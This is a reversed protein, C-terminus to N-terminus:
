IVQATDAYETAVNEICPGAKQPDLDQYQETVM